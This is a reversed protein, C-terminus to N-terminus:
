PGSRGPGPNGQLSRSKSASITVTLEKFEAAEDATLEGKSMLEEHRRLAPQLGLTEVVSALELAAGNEDIGPAMEEQALAAMRAAEPRERWRELLVATRSAPEQQLHDILEFLFRAGPDDVMELRTLQAGTLREAIPPFHVLHKVAKTVLGKNGGGDRPRHFHGAPRGSEPATKLHGGSSDTLENFWLQNL